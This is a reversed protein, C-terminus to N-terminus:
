DISPSGLARSPCRGVGLIEMRRARLARLLQSMKNRSWVVLGPAVIRTGMVWLVLLVLVLTAKEEM